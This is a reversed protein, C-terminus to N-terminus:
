GHPQHHKALAVLTSQGIRKWRCLWREIICRLASYHGLIERVEAAAEDVIATAQEFDYGASSLIGVAQELDSKSGLYNPELGKKPAVMEEAVMGAISVLVQHWASDDLDVVTLGKPPECDFLEVSQVNLGLALAVTTHGSEHIAALAKSM